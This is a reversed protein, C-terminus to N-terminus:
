IKIESNGQLEKLYFELFNQYKKGILKYNFQKESFFIKLILDVTANSIEV